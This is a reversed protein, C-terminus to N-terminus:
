PSQWTEEKPHKHRHWSVQMRTATRGTPWVASRAPTRTELAGKPGEGQSSIWATAQQHHVLMCRDKANMATLGCVKASRTLSCTLM